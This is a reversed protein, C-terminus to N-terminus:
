KREPNGWSWRPKEGKKVTTILLMATLVIVLLTFVKPNQLASFKALGLIGAMYFLIVLWGQWTVPTWGWGYWKAKFWYNKPNNKVYKIYERFM